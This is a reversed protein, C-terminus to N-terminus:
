TELAQPPISFIELGEVSVILSSLIVRKIQAQFPTYIKLLNKKPNFMTLLGIGSFAYNVDYLHCLIGARHVRCIEELGEEIVIGKDEAFSALLKNIIYSVRHVRNEGTIYELEVWSIPITRVISRRLFREYMMERLKKRAELSRKRVALPPPLERIDISHEKCYEELEPITDGIMVLHTPNFIKMLEKKHYIAGESNIWGDVDIVLNQIPYKTILNSYLKEVSKIHRNMIPTPSTYGVAEMNEAKVYSIDPLPNKLYVYGITTPPCISSQGVDLDMFICTKKMSIIINAGLTALSTKGSDSGGMFMITLRDQGAIEQVTKLWEDPITNGDVEEISGGEGFTYEIKSDEYAYVPRSRWSRIVIQKKQPLPCGLISAKGELLKISAPGNVILTKGSKLDYVPM